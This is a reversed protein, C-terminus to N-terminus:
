AAERQAQGSRAIRDALEDVKAWNTYDVVADAKTPGGTLRMIFRIMAKEWWAYLRYELRGALVAGLVPTLGHKKVWKRYYANTEPRDKGPKRATLNVSILVLRQKQIYNKNKQIFRDMSSLHYGYRIPALLVLTGELPWDEPEVAGAGLDFAAFAQGAARWRDTLRKAIRGTQGDHTAYILHIPIM